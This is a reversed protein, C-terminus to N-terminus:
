PEHRQVHQTRLMGTGGPHVGQINGRAVPGIKPNAHGLVRCAGARERGWQPSFAHQNKHDPNGQHYPITIGNRGIQTGPQYKRATVDVRMGATWYSSLFTKASGGHKRIHLFRRGLARVPCLYDEGNTEGKWGNKQNDLKMTAGDATAISLAPAHRSLCRLQEVTNKKFFTVDEYKFQVTQKTENRKGKITYEGIRLLYYFAILTLDGITKDLDSGTGDRGIEALLEPVDAEVPLQKTTPPDEKCWGDLIQSLRPLLRESGAIKTPNTGCALAIEQGVATIAGVVTGAAVRKGRGYFGQRIRAAFGTLVRVKTTYQVGQSYPDLGLPRVYRIWNAWHTKRNDTTAAVRGAYYGKDATRFDRAYDSRHRIPLRDLLGSTPPPITFQFPNSVRREHHLAMGSCERIVLPIHVPTIPCSQKINLRLALARVLQAAVRSKKSAMKATWSVLLSSDGFLAVHKHALTPAVGELCLWLLLLGTMELDSNTIKGKPNEFSVLKSSIDAPWQLRFVIPPLGSLEGLVVGGVDHSSADVIGIYDPWAAALDKCQTPQSMSARLITRIDQIAELLTGDRHLYVVKPRRQIIWNCPSLLGRGERLAMFAHRLKATVSEFEAFPIGRRARTAGRIWQNLITLLSARKAEELWIMKNVGDFDFGLLCKTSEFTGDGKPLKKALIPDKTDDTSPPFVDHIGHLIGRAVHEVQQHTTPIICSIFNNVYVELAYRLAADTRNPNVKTNASGAWHKFKHPPLSRVRTEIYEVAVDRATESAACFYPASEVWGM